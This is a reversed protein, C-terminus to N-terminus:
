GLQVHLLTAWWQEIHQFIPSLPYVHVMGLLLLGGFIVVLGYPRVRLYGSWWSRPLLRELVASGDLPPIPILNFFAVWLNVMGAYFIVTAVLGLTGGHPGGRVYLLWFLLGSLAALVINTFPGALSVLVGQNRPSRLRRLTVPVPKAWGFFGWGSLMMIAPVLLTGIPDVHRIPNLSLRGARKATDDGFALAVWGHSIEHLILSPILVCFWIVETQNIRHARLLIVVVAVVAIIWIVSKQSPRRRSASRPPPQGPPIYQWGATM